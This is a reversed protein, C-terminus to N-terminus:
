GSDRFFGRIRDLGIVKLVGHLRVVNKIYAKALREMLGIGKMPMIVISKTLRHM